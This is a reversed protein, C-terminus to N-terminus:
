WGVFEIVGTQVFIGNVVAFITCGGVKEDPEVDENLDAIFEEKAGDILVFEKAAGIGFSDLENIELICGIVVGLAFSDSEINLDEFHEVENNPRLSFAGVKEKEEFM